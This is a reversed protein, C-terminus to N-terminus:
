RNATSASSDTKRYRIPVASTIAAWSPCGSDTIASGEMESPMMGNVSGRVTRGSSVNVM